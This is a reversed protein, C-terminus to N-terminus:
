TEPILSNGRVPLGADRGCIEQGARNEM